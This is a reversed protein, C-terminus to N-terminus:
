FWKKKKFIVICFIVIAICLLIVFPYGYDWSIEPMKLNMGYWGAVLTLPLFIATIVTFVKMTVNLSIDVQSQYAERVQTVYDRLNQATQHLRNVRNAINGCYKLESADFFSNENEDLEDFLEVLQEYYRKLELLRKRFDVIDKIYGEGNSTILSDELDTIEEEIDQLVKFDKRTALDLLFMFNRVPSLTRNFNAAIIDPINDQGEWPEYVVLLFRNSVYGAMASVNDQNALQPPIKLYVIDFTDHNEFKSIMNSHFEGLIKQKIEAELNTQELEGLRIFCIRSKDKEENFLRSLDIDKAKGDEYCIM